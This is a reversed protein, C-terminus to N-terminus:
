TYWTHSIGNGITLNGPRKILPESTNFVMNAIQFKFGSESIKNNFM